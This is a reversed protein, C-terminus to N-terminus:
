LISRSINLMGSLSSFSVLRLSQIYFMYRCILHVFACIKAERIDRLEREKNTFQGQHSPLQAQLAIGHVKVHLRWPLIISPSMSADPLLMHVLFITIAKKMISQYTIQFDCIRNHSRRNFNLGIWILDDTKDCVQTFLPNRPQHLIDVNTLIGTLLKLWQDESFATYTAVAVIAHTYIDLTNSPQSV